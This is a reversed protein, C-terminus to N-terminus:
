LLNKVTGSLTRLAKVRTYAAGMGIEKAVKHACSQAITTHIKAAETCIALNGGDDKRLLQARSVLQKNRNAQPNFQTDLLDNIQEYCDSRFSSLMNLIADSRENRELSPIIDRVLIKFAQSSNDIATLTEHCSKPTRSVVLAKLSQYFIDLHEGYLSEHEFISDEVEIGSIQQEFIALENEEFNSPTDRENM